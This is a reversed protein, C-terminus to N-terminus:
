LYRSVQWGIHANKKASPLLLESPARLIEFYFFELGSKVMMKLGFLSTEHSLIKTWKNKGKYTTHTLLHGYNDVHLPFTTLITDFKTWM